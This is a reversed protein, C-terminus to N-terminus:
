IGSVLSGQPSAASELYAGGIISLGIWFPEKYRFPLWYHIVFGVIVTGALPVYSPNFRICIAALGLLQALVVSFPGASPRSREERLADAAAQKSHPGGRADPIPAPNPLTTPIM